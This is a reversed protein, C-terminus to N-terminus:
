RGAGGASPVMGASKLLGQAAGALLVGPLTWGPIPVPREQAGAAILIRRAQVMRGRGQSAIGLQLDKQVLWVSTDPRYDAKSARFARLLEVGARYAPGLM